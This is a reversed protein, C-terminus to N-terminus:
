HVCFDRCCKLLFAELVYIDIAFFRIRSKEAAYKKAPTGIVVTLQRLIVRVFPASVFFSHAQKAVRASLLRVGSVLYNAGTWLAPWVFLLLL